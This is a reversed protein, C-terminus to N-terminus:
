KIKLKIDPLTRTACDPCSAKIDTFTGITGSPAKNIEGLVEKTLFFGKVPINAGGLASLIKFTYSKISYPYSYLSKPFYIKLATQVLIDKKYGEDGQIKGVSAKLQPISDSVFSVTRIMKSNKKYRIELRMVKGKDPFPMAMVNLTDGKIEPTGIRLGKDLSRIKIDAPKFDPSWIQIVNYGGNFLLATDKKSCWKNWVHLSDAQAFGSIFAPMLAIFLLFQKM